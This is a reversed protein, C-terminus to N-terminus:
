ILTISFRIVHKTMPYKLEQLESADGQRFLGRTNMDINHYSQRVRHDRRPLRINLLFERLFYALKNYLCRLNYTLEALAPEWWLAQRPGHEIYERRGYLALSREDKAKGTTETRKKTYYDIIKTWQSHIERFYVEKIWTAYREQTDLGMATGLKVLATIQPLGIISEAKASFALSAEFFVTEAFKTYDLQEIGKRFREVAVLHVDKKMLDATDLFVEENEKAYDIRIRADTALLGQLGYVKDIPNHCQSSSFTILLNTFTYTKASLAHDVLWTMQRPVSHQLQPALQPMSSLCFRRLEEWSLLTEGCIIRIYRALMIEQVVWLRKWYPNEFFCELAHIPSSTPQTCDKESSNSEQKAKAVGHRKRKRASPHATRVEYYHRLGSKLWRMAAEINANSPGLWVYVYTAQRYIDSMMKVQHNREDVVAQNICVQDVWLWQTEDEFAGNSKFKFLRARFAEFFAYLNQRVELSRGNISIRKLPEPPGWMYSLARYDPATDDDLFANKLRCKIEGSHEPLISILRIQQRTRDLPEHTFRVDAGVMEEPM